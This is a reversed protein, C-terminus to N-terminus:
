PAAQEAERKRAMGSSAENALERFNGRNEYTLELSASMRKFAAAVDAPRGADMAKISEDLLKAAAGSYWINLDYSEATRAALFMLGSWAMTVIGFLIRSGKRDCMVSGVVLATLIGFFLIIIVVAEM